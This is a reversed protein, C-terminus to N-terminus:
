CTGTSLRLGDDRRVIVFNGPGRSNDPQGNVISFSRAVLRGDAIALVEFNGGSSFDIGSSSATDASCYPAKDWQHPGGTYKVATDGEAPMRLVDSLRTLPSAVVPASATSAVPLPGNPLEVQPVCALLTLAVLGLAQIRVSRMTRM